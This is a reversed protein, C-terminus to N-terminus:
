YFESIIRFDSTTEWQPRTYLGGFGFQMKLHNKLIIEMQPVIRYFEFKDGFGFLNQELGFEIERSESYLYFITFNLVPVYEPGSKDTNYQWGAMTLYSWDKSLRHGHILLPTIETHTTKHVYKESM